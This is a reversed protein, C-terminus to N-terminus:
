TALWEAIVRDRAAAALHYLELRGHFLFMAREGTYLSVWGGPGEVIVQYEPATPPTYDRLLFSWTYGNEGPIKRGSEVAGQCTASAIKPPMGVQTPPPGPQMGLTAAVPVLMALARELCGPALYDAPPKFHHVVQEGPTRLRGTRTDFYYITRGRDDRLQVLGLEPWHAGINGVVTDDYPRDGNDDGSRHITVRGDATIVTIRRACWGQEDKDFYGDDYDARLDM